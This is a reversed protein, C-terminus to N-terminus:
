EQGQYQDIIVQSSEPTWEYDNLQERMVQLPTFQELCSRSECAAVNNSTIISLPFEDSDKRDADFKLKGAVKFWDGKEIAENTHLEADYPAEVRWSGDDNQKGVEVVQHYTISDGRMLRLYEDSGFYNVDRVWQQRLREPSKDSVSKFRNLINEQEVALRKREQQAKLLAKQEKEFVYNKARQLNFQWGSRTNQARVTYLSHESTSYRDRSRWGDFNDVAIVDVWRVNRSLTPSIKEISQNLILSIDDANKFVDMNETLLILEPRKFDWSTRNREMEGGVLFHVKNVANSGAYLWIEEDDLHQIPFDADIHKFAFGDRFIADVTGLVKGDSRELHWKGAGQALGDPGCNIGESSSVLYETPIEFTLGSLYRCGQQDELTLAPEYKELVASTSKPQWGKVSFSAVPQEYVETSDESNLEDKTKEAQLESPSSDAKALVNSDSNESTSTNVTKEEKLVEAKEQPKTESVDDQSIQTKSVSEAKAENKAKAEANNDKDVLVGETKEKAHSDDSDSSEYQLRWSSAKEAQGTKLKKGTGDISYWSVETAETCERELLVGLKPMMQELIQPDTAGKDQFRLVPDASCWSEGSKHEVFVELNASQSFALRYDSDANVNFVAGFLGCVMVSTKVVKLM